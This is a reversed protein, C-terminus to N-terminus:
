SGKPGVSERTELWTQLFFQVWEWWPSDGISGPQDTCVTGRGEGVGTLQPADATHQGKRFLSGNGEKVPVELFGKTESQVPHLLSVPSPEHLLRSWPMALWLVPGIRPPFLASFIKPMNELLISLVRDERIWVGWKSSSETCAGHNQRFNERPVPCMQGNHFLDFTASLTHVKSCGNFMDHRLQPSLIRTQKNRLHVFMSRIYISWITEWVDEHFLAGTAWLLWRSMLLKSNAEKRAERMTSGPVLLVQQAATGCAPTVSWPTKVQRLFFLNLGSIALPLIAMLLKQEPAWGRQKRIEM